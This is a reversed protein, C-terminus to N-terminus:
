AGQRREEAAAGIAKPDYLNNPIFLGPLIGGIFYAIGLLGIGFAISYQVSFFGIMIPSAMSGIRGMQFSVAQATGRISTPYSEALYQSNVGM